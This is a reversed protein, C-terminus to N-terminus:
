FAVKVGGIASQGFFSSGGAEAQYDIFLTVTKNLEADLGTGLLANDSNGKVTQVSFTGAPLGEFQSAINAIDDLFEHQWFASM